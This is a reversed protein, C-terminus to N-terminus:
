NIMLMYSCCHKDVTKSYNQCDSCIVQMSVSTYYYIFLISVGLIDEHVTQTNCPELQHVHVQVFLPFM